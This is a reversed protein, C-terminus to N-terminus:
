WISTYYCGNNEWDLKFCVSITIQFKILDVEKLPGSFIYFYNMNNLYCFRSLNTSQQLNLFFLERLLSYIHQVSKSFVLCTNRSQDHQRLFGRYAHYFATWNFCLSGNKHYWQMFALYFNIKTFFFFISFLSRLNSFVRLSTLDLVYRCSRQSQASQM